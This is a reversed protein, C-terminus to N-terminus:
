DTVSVNSSNTFITFFKLNKFNRFSASCYQQHVPPLCGQHGLISIAIYVEVQKLPLVFYEDDFSMYGCVSHFLKWASNIDIPLIKLFRVGCVWIYLHLSLLVMFM